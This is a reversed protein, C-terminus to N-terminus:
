KIRYGGFGLNIRAYIYSPTFDPGSSITSTVTGWTSNPMAWVYGVRLGASFGGFADDMRHTFINGGIAANLMLCSRSINSETYPKHLLDSFSKNAVQRFSLGASGGGIGILGYLFGRNLIVPVYGFNFFGAGTSAQIEMTDNSVISSSGGSGEGEYIFSNVIGHGYGGAQFFNGSLKPFGSLYNNVPSIDVGSYGTTFYGGGGSITKQARVEQHIMLCVLSILIISFLYNTKM